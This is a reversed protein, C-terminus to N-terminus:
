RTTWKRADARNSVQKLATRHKELSSALRTLIQVADSVERETASVAKKVFGLQGKRGLLDQAARTAGMMMVRADSLAQAALGVTSALAPLGAVAQVIDLRVREPGVPLQDAPIFEPPVYKDDVGVFTMELQLRLTQLQRAVQSNM